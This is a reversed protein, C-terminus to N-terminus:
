IPTHATTGDLFNWVDAAAAGESFVTSGVTSNFVMKGQYKGTTNIAATIDALLATTSVNADLINEERDWVSGKVKTLSM